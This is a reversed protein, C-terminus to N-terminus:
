ERGEARIKYHVVSSTNQSTAPPNRQDRYSTSSSNLKNYSFANPVRPNSTPRSKAEFELALSVAKFVNRPKHIRVDVKLEEKLGSLFVGLLCHDPWDHVRAVRKAFEQRYEQVTGTQKINCLHEDPNQFEAPGYNEHLIKVLEEWYLHNHEASIWAFLDLADGELYMSAIEVKSEDPTQYYRFYKEAKLIWGRPDGGEFKPFEMKTFPRRASNHYWGTSESDDDGRSGNPGAQAKLVAVDAALADLANLKSAISSLQQALNDPNQAPSSTHTHNPQKNHSASNRTNVM